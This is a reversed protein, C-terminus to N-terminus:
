LATRLQQAACTRCPNTNCSVSAHLTNNRVGSTIHFFVGLVNLYYAFGKNHLLSIAVDFHDPMLQPHSQCHPAWSCVACFGKHQAAAGMCANVQTLTAQTLGPQGATVSSARLPVAYSATPQGAAPRSGACPGPAAGCGGFLRLQGRCPRSHGNCDSM